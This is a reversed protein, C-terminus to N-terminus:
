AQELLRQLYNRDMERGWVFLNYLITGFIRDASEELDDPSAEARLEALARILVARREALLESRFRAGFEPDSQAETMLGVFASALGPWSLTAVLRELYAVVASPGRPTPGDSGVRSADAAPAQSPELRVEPLEARGVEQVVALVLARKDPWRRYITQKGLGAERALGEITLGDYGERALVEAAARLAAQTAQLSPPRGRSRESM